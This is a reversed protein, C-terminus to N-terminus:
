MATKPEASVNLGMFGLEALASLNTLFATREGGQDLKAAVPALESRAFRHAMEQIMTQEETLLLNM